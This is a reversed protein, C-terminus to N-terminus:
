NVPWSYENGAITKVIFWGDDTEIDYIYEGEELLGFAKAYAEIFALM